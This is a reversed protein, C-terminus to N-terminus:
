MVVPLTEIAFFDLAFFLKGATTSDILLYYRFSVLKGYFYGSLINLPKLFENVDENM